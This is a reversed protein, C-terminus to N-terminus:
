RNIFLKKSLANGNVAIEVFYIGNNFGSTNLIYQHSGSYLNAKALDAVKQGLSNFVSITVHSEELMTFKILSYDQAPNPMINFSTVNQEIDNVSMPIFESEDFGIGKVYAFNTIALEGSFDPVCVYPLEYDFDDGGTICVPSMTAYIAVTEVDTDLTLNKVETWTNNTVDIGRGFIDPLENDIEDVSTLWCFFLKEGDESVAAQVHTYLDQFSAADLFLGPGSNEITGIIMDSWTNDANSLTYDVLYGEYFFGTLDEAYQMVEGLVHLDGNLDVVADFDRFYPLNNLATGSNSNAIDLEAQLIWSAGNDTTKYVVPRELEGDYENLCGGIIMYGVSGDSSFASNINGNVIPFGGSLKFDPVVATYEWDLEESSENISGKWFAYQTLNTIQDGTWNTSIAYFDDGGVVLSRGQYDVNYIGNDSDNLAQLVQEDAPESGDMKQSGFFTHTWISYAGGVSVCPGMAAYYSDDMTGGAPTLLAGSPYRYGYVIVEGDPTAFHLGDDSGGTSNSDVMMPTLLEDITWTAGGDTSIDYRVVGSGGLSPFISVDQRHIFSVADLAPNYHVQNQSADLITYINSATGIYITENMQSKDIVSGSNSENILHNDSATAENSRPILQSQSSSQAFLTSASICILGILLRKKM